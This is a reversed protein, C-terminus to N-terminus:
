VARCSAAAFPYFRLVDFSIQQRTSLLAHALFALRLDTLFTPQLPMSTALTLVVLGCFSHEVQALFLAPLSAVAAPGHHLQTLTAVVHATSTIGFEAHDATLLPLRAVTRPEIQWRLQSYTPKQIWPLGDRQWREVYAYSFQRRWWGEQFPKLV